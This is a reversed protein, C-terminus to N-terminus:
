TIQPPAQTPLHQFGHLWGSLYVRMEIWILRTASLQGALMHCAALWGICSVRKSVGDGAGDGVGDGVGSGVGDGLCLEV